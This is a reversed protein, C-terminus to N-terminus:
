KLHAGVEFSRSIDLVIRSVDQLSVQLALMDHDLRNFDLMQDVLRLMRGSNRRIIGTLEEQRPSLDKDESLSSVAGEILSIPTRFEHSVNSFFDINNRNIQEQVRRENEAKEAAKRRLAHARLLGLVLLFALLGAVMMAYQYGPRLVTVSLEVPISESLSSADVAKLRITNRGRSLNYLPLVPSGQVSQWGENRGTQFAYNYLNQGYPEIVPFQLNLNQYRSPLVISQTRAKLLHPDLRAVVADNETFFVNLSVDLAERAKGSLINVSRFGQQSHLELQGDPLLLLTKEGDSEQVGSWLRSFSEEGNKKVYLTNGSICYLFGNADEAVDTVDSGRFADVRDVPGESPLYRFLGEDSTYVWVAGERDEFLGRIYYQADPVPLSILKTSGDSPRIHLIGIDSYAMLVDGNRLRVASSANVFAEERFPIAEMRVTEGHLPMTKAHYVTAGVGAAWVGGIGDTVFSMRGAPNDNVYRGLLSLAGNGSHRVLFAKDGNGILLLGEKGFSSMSYPGPATERFFIDLDVPEGCQQRGSDYVLLSRNDLIVYIFVGDQVFGGIHHEEIASLLNGHATHAFQNSRIIRYGGSSLGIWRNGRSDTYFFPRAQPPTEVSQSGLHHFDRDYREISRDFFISIEEQGIVARTGISETQPFDIVSHFSRNKEDVALLSRKTLAFIQGAPDTVLELIYRNGEDTDYHVFGDLEPDYRDVGKQTGIWLRGAGDKELCNIFKSSISLSDDSPLYQIYYRGDYRLLGQTQSSMWMTGDADECFGGISIGSVDEVVRGSGQLSTEPRSCSVTMFLFALFIGLHLKGM